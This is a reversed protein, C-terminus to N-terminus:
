FYISSFARSLALSAPLLLLLRLRSLTASVDSTNETKAANLSTAEFKEINDEDEPFDALRGDDIVDLYEDDFRNSIKFERHQGPCKMFDTASSQPNM